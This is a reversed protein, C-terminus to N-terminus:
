DQKWFAEYDKKLKETKYSENYVKKNNEFLYLLCRERLMTMREVKLDSVIHEEIYGCLYEFSKRRAELM